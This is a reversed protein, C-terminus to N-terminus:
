APYFAEAQVKKAELSAIDLPGGQQALKELEPLGARVSEVVEDRTAARGRSFWETSSPDGLEILKGGDGDDFVRWRATTWLLCVGPNRRVFHGGTTTLNSTTEDERREEQRLTLFPCNRASWRACELHSPPESSIRNIACMPGIVFTGELALHDGCVWCRRQRIAKVWKHHAVIRFEPEGRIREVFWPVPFGRFVPLKAIRDTLPELWAKLASKTKSYPCKSM